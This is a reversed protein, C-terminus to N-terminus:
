AAIFGAQAPNQTAHPALSISAGSIGGLCCLAVVACCCYQCRCAETATRSLLLVTLLLVDVFNPGIGM